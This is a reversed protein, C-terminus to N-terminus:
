HNRLWSQLFEKFFAKLLKYHLNPNLTLGVLYRHNQTLQPLMNLNMNLRKVYIQIHDKDFYYGNEISFVKM